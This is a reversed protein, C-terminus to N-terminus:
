QRQLYLTMAPRGPRNVNLMLVGDPLLSFREITTQGNEVTKVVLADGEWKAKTKFDKGEHITTGEHGDMTFGYSVTQNAGDFTFSRTITINHERDNITVTGTQIAAQGGFDSRAPIISWSGNLRHHDAASALAACFLAAVCAALLRGRLLHM